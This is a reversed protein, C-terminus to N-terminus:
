NPFLNVPKGEFETYPLNENSDRLVSRNKKNNISANYIQQKRKSETMEIEQFIEERNPMQVNRKPLGPSNESALDIEGHDRFTTVNQTRASFIFLKFVNLSSVKAFEFFNLM